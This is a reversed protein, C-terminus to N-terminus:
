LLLTISQDSQTPTPAEYRGPPKRQRIAANKQIDGSITNSTDM